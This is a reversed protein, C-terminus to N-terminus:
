SKLHTISGYQSIMASEIFGGALLLAIVTGIEIITPRIEQKIPNKKIIAWMLIFSRSMGISYAALEMVGFPSIILITIPPIKALLPSTSAIANFALGTSASAFLGWVIGFGPIFMPLGISANHTFIGIANIGEVAQEFEKLFAKSDEQPMKIEAGLSFSTAFIGVFIFRILIRKKRFM